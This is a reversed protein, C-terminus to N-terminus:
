GESKRRPWKQTRKVELSYRDLRRARQENYPYTVLQGVLLWMEREERLTPPIKLGLQAALPVRGVNVLACVASSWAQISVISLHYSVICVGLAMGGTAWIAIGEDERIVTAACLVALTLSLYVLSVFFNVVANTNAEDHRLSEPAVSLLESWLAQSDLQYRQYGYTELSRMANAFKTPGLQLPTVPYRAVKEWALGYSIGVGYADSALAVSQSQSSTADSSKLLANYRKRLRRAELKYLELKKFHRLTRRRRIFGPLYYGELVRFLITSLGNLVLALVLSAVILWVTTQLDVPPIKQSGLLSEQAPLIVVVFSAIATM